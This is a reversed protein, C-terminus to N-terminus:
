RLLTQLFSADARSSRNRLFKDFRIQREKVRIEMERDSLNQPVDSANRFRAATFFTNRFTPIEGEGGNPSGGETGELSGPTPRHRLEIPRAGAVNANGRDSTTHM